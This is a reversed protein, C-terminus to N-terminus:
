SRVGSLPLRAAADGWRKAFAELAQRNQLSKKSDVSFLIEGCLTRLTCLFLIVVINRQARQARQTLIKGPGM